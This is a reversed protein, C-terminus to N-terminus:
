GLRGSYKKKKKKKKKKKESRINRRVCNDAFHRITANINDPLDNIFILISGLVGPVRPVGSLVPAPDSFVGADFVVKQTRRIRSQM